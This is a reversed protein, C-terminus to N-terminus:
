LTSNEHELAKRIADVREKSAALAETRHIESAIVQLTGALANVQKRSGTLSQELGREPTSDALEKTSDHLQNALYRFHGAAFNRTVQERTVFDISLETENAISIASTLDSRLKERTM